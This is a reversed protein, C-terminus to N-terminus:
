LKEIKKLEKYFSPYEQEIDEGYCKLWLKIIKKLTIKKIMTKMIGKKALRCLTYM